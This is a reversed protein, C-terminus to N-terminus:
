FNTPGFDIPKQFEVARIHQRLSPELNNLPLVISTKNQSAVVYYAGKTDQAINCGFTHEFHKKDASVMLGGGVIEMTEFGALRFNEIVDETAALTNLLVIAHIQNATEDM